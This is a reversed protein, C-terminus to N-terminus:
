KAKVGEGVDHVSNWTKLTDVIGEHLQSITMGKGYRDYLDMGLKVSIGDGGGPDSKGVLFSPGGQALMLMTRSFGAARGVYGFHINSWTDFLVKWTPDGSLMPIYRNGSAQLGFGNLLKDKHDWVHGPAVKDYFEKMAIIAGVSDPELMRTLDGDFLFEKAACIKLNNNCAMDLVSDSHVNTHMESYMYYLIKAYLPSLNGPLNDREYRQKEKEDSSGSKDDKSTGPAVPWYVSSSPDVPTVSGDNTGGKGEGGGCLDVPCLGTPDSLNVPNNNAYAYGNWQQPNTADLLPDPNLFRGTTPQYERAGLNTLGTAPDQTGGVFGKDGTWTVPQTGRPNGFPDLPRRSEALTTADLALAATGHGDSFQITRTTGQRVITLGNPQPYYRTNVLTKTATNYTLEDGGLNLTTKGPDRRILQNGDADYLYTTTGTSNVLSDLKDEGNWTLTTSAGATTVKTTNGVADYQYASTGPNNPGTSTTAALSHPGGTGGGTGVATTPQNTQGAPAFTQTTTVDNATIGATNHQTLTTRNGTPDYGYSTWYPAPGGVTTTGSSTPATHTCGGIGPVSPQPQTTTSGTDSWATTLRGLSDYTFCQLDTKAPTNNQIDSVSTTRGAQNYTYTYQDVAGNTSTQKDILDSVARGTAPDYNTTAVVQTGWPNLTTRIPRGFVDYNTQLDYTIQGTTLILPGNVDYYSALTEASSGGLAPVDVASIKGTIPDYHSKTTYTFPTTQGVESGPVTLTAGTSRYGNDYGLISTRYSTGTIGGVYRTSGAPQGKGNAATDYTWASLQNAPAISGTYLGTKRGNLDYSYVLTQQRADKSTVLRGDGDYTQATTGTDPDTVTIQRGRLDYGYSWTNKATADTRTASKGAPTYTYSTVDADSAHRTVGATRYHWLQSTLGRADTFTTTPTGGSPPTVDTEDVGPRATTTRWQEVGKASFISATVQGQGDFVTSTESNVEDDPIFRNGNPASSDDYYPARTQITWGHSDYLVDTLLRGPLSSLAPITQTQRPRGLGDLIQVSRGYTEDEKLTSTTTSSPGTTGNIAYAFTTNASDSTTRGPLWVSSLRGLADYAEVTTKGNADVVSLPLGRAIDQTTTTKWDTTSGPAPTTVTITNPLEGSKASTYVTTTTAGSLHQADTTNPDTASTTRGYSDYGTLGTTVFVPAGSADYRDLTQGSTADGLAGAKQFALSDYLVRSDSVTNAATPTATCSGSGSITRTEAVLGIMQASTGVAYKTLACQEPLGDATTRVSDTRNGHGPDTTSTTATTRWTDDAKLGRKTEVVSTSVYRAVLNFGTLGTRKHTATPFPATARHVTYATVKGGAGAKDYSDTELAQGSLWDDDTVHEGLSDDVTVTKTGGAALADGDMGQLYKTVSQTIPGDQGSGTTTTVTAYGRFQDWTRDTSETLESDNRHWAADGYGYHTIKAPSGAVLDNETIQDVTYRNFWDSAPPEGYISGPPYWKVNYCKMKNDDASPPMVHNVRSCVPLSYDIVINEGTETTISKIRPRNFIAPAPVLDMGNVRNPKMAWTFIVPPLPPTSPGDLGTRQIKDLWLGKSTGDSPDPFSQTLTYSDVPKSTGNSMVQTTISALRQNSWFSPGYNTCPNADCHQDYPVDPWHAANTKSLTAGTCTFGGTTDCRGEPVPNFSITAAAKAAGKAAVQGSLTQGYNISRLAGSRTYPTLTGTGNNQGGGRSYSDGEATYTYTTLNGHVDVSYDLNWRWAMQCWSGKGKAADYCPDGSNPSYVPVAWASHSAPDTKDGGPLHNLGFYYVTGATTTVRVYEGRSDDNSAGTLFDVKSGNDDKLRWTGNDDDRVLESSHGDLSLTANYGGWCEDGSYQLGDKDCSKYSREIFGPKYDWGDGIWSAQANTSSTRGDVSSSDYSLALQPASGGLAPPVQIPYSYGFGGNSSGATWKASPALDTAAFTGASGAPSSMPALVIQQTIATAGISPSKPTTSLAPSPAATPLTVDAVLRHTAADYHSSVPTQTRCAPVTPTTLACAPLSVLRSRQAFGGGWAADVSSIDIGVQVRGAPAADTRALTVALGPLGAAAIAKQDAVSVRVSAGTSSATPRTTSSPAIWVPLNGARVAGATAKAAPVAATAMSGFPVPAVKSPARTGPVAYPLKAVAPAPATHGPVSPTQPLATNPPSWIKGPDPAQAAAIAEASLPTLLAAFVALVSASGLLAHRGRLKWRTRAGTSSGQVVGGRTKGTRVSNRAFSM